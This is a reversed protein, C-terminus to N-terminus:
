DLSDSARAVVDVYRPDIFVRNGGFFFGHYLRLVSGDPGRSDRMSVHETGTYIGVFVDFLAHPKKPQEKKSSDPYRREALWHKNGKRDSLERPELPESLVVADGRSIKEAM